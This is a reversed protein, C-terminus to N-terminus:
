APPDVVRALARLMEMNEAERNDSEELSTGYRRNASLKVVVVERAPDVYVFQNYVGIGSFEGTTEGADTKPIWWQYGYGIPPEGELGPIPEFPPASEAVSEAVWAEPVVQVDGVRGGNRYLEGLRAFDRATVTLCAFAAETGASDVLWSCSSTFGLPEVLKEHMYDALSRGTAKILLLGLAQTDGSNYRCMTGPELERVMGGVFDVLTGQGSMAAALRLADSTPDSYDESWRAGSAMRLVDRIAVGDYASGDPVDVYDSIMDDVGGIHGEEIAIGVLASVFSKAVSMSIWRVEPGGTLAYREYRVEGRHLLLLAATETEAFGDEFPKVRGAHDFTAPAEVPAGSPWPRPRTSAPMEVSPLLDAMRCFNDVQAVGTFLGLDAFRTM